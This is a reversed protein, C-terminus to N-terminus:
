KKEKTSILPDADDRQRVSDDLRKIQKM